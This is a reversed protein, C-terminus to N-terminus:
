DSVDVRYHATRTEIHFVAPSRSAYLVVVLHNMSLPYPLHHEPIGKGPLSQVEFTGGVGVRGRLRSLPDAADSARSSYWRTHERLGMREGALYHLASGRGSAPPLAPTPDRGGVSGSCRIAIHPHKQQMARLQMEKGLDSGEGV